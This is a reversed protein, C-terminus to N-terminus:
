ENDSDEGSGTIDHLIGKTSAEKIYEIFSRENEKDDVYDDRHNHLGHMSIGSSNITTVLRDGVTSDRKPLFKRLWRSNRIYHMVIKGISLVVIIFTPVALVATWILIVPNSM